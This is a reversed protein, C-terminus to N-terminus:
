GLGQFLGNFLFRGAIENLTRGVGHFQENVLDGM